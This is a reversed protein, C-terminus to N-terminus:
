VPRHAEAARDLNEKLAAVREKLTPDTGDITGARIAAYLRSLREEAETAQPALDVIRRDASAQREDRRTKLTLLISTVREPQLLQDVLADVVLKEIV